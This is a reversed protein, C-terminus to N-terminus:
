PKFIESLHDVTTEDNKNLIALDVAIGLARPMRCFAKKKKKRFPWSCGSVRRRQICAIAQISGTCVKM